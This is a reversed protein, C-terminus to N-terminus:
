EQEKLASYNWRKKGEEVKKKYIKESLDGAALKMDLQEIENEARELMTAKYRDALKDLTNMLRKGTKTIEYIIRPRGEPPFIANREGMGRDHLLILHKDVAQRTLELEEALDEPHDYGEGLMDLIECRTKSSFIGIMEETFDKM